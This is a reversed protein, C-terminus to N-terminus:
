KLWLPTLGGIISAIPVPGFYRSDFSDPVSEMLLFVEGNGLTQCGNWEPLRRGERDAKLQKAAAYGDVSVIGKVACVRDGKLAVVRKVLDVNLPLYHREAALLRVSKPTKVLVLDGRRIQGAHRVLYFGLRASASGNYIVLPTPRVLFAYGLLAIGLTAFVLVARPRLRRRRRRTRNFGLEYFGHDFM